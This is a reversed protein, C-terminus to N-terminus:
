VQYSQLFFALPFPKSNAWAVPFHKPLHGKAPQIAMNQSAKPLPQQLKCLRLLPQPVQRANV